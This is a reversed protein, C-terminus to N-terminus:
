SNFMKELRGETGVFPTTEDDVHDLFLKKAEAVQLENYKKKIWPYITKTQVQILGYSM